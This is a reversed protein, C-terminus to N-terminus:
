EFGIWSERRKRVKVLCARVMSEKDLGERSSGEFRGFARECVEACVGRGRIWRKKTRSPFFLTYAYKHTCVTHHTYLSLTAHILSYLIYPTTQSYSTYVLLSSMFIRTARLPHASTIFTSATTENFDVLDEQMGCYYYTTGLICIILVEYHGKTQM